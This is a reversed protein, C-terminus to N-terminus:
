ANHPISRDTRGPIKFEQRYPVDGFVSEMLAGRPRDPGMPAHDCRVLDSDSERIPCPDPQVARQGQPDPNFQDVRYTTEHVRFM